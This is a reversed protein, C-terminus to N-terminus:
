FGPPPVGLCAIGGGTKEMRGAWAPGPVPGYSLIRAGAAGAAPSLSNGKGSVDFVPITTGTTRITGTATRAACTTRTTTGAAGVCFVADM